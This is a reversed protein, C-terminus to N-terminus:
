FYLHSGPESKHTGWQNQAVDDVRVKGNEELVLAVRFRQAHSRKRRTVVVGEHDVPGLEPTVM